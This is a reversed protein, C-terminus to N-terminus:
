CTRRSPRAERRNRRADGAGAADAPRRPYAPACRRSRRRTPCGAVLAEYVREVAHRPHTLRAALDGDNTLLLLGESDYDLRGVPYVYERCAALLDIVTAGGSRIAAADHRLRQAQEAPHLPTRRRAARAPRRRADRRHAPDAKTGLTAVVDGNVTVRRELILQEAARRSAVGAASLLKQLRIPGSSMQVIKGRLIRPLQPAVSVHAVFPM